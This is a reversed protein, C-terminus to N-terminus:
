LLLKVCRNVERNDENNECYPSIELSFWTLLSRYGRGMMLMLGVVVALSIRGVFRANANRRNVTAAANWNVLSLKHQQVGAGDTWAKWCGDEKM